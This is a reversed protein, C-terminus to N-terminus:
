AREATRQEGGGIAVVTGVSSADGSDPESEQGFLGGGVGLAIIIPIAAVWTPATVGALLPTLFGLTIFVIALLPAAYAILNSIVTQDVAAIAMLAVVFAGGMTWGFTRLAHKSARLRRWLIGAVAGLALSLLVVTLSNAADTDPNPLPLSVVGAVIAGIAGAVTGALVPHWANPDYTYTDSM